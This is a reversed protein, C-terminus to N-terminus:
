AHALTNWLEVVPRRYGHTPPITFVGSSLRFSNGQNVFLGTGAALGASRRVTSSVFFGCDVRYFALIMIKELVSVVTALNMPAVCRDSNKGINGIVAALGEDRWTKTTLVHTPSNLSDVYQRELEENEKTIADVQQQVLLKGFTYFLAPFEGVSAIDPSLM